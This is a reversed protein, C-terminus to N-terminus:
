QYRTVNLGRNKKGSTPRRRRTPKLGKYGAKASSIDKDWTVPSALPEESGTGASRLALSLQGITKGLVLIEAQQPTVELTATKGTISAQKKENVAEAGIALVRINKLITEAARITKPLGGKVERTTPSISQTLLVDVRDNPLIFGGASTEPKLALSVARMGPSLVAAMFGTKGDTIVKNATVPEGALVDRRLVGGDYQARLKKDRSESQIYTKQLSERPWKRWVVTNPQLEEGRIYKRSFVLVDAAIANMARQEALLSATQDDGTTMLNRVLLATGIAAIGAVAFIVIRL